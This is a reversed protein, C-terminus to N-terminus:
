NLKFNELDMERLIPQFKPTWKPSQSMFFTSITKKTEIYEKPKMPPTNFINPKIPNNDKFNPIDNSQLCITEMTGEM